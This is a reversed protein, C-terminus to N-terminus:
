QSKQKSQDSLQKNIGVITIISPLMGSIFILPIIVAEPELRISHTLHQNALYGCCLIFLIGVTSIIFYHTKRAKVLKENKLHKNTM